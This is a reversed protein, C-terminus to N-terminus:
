YLRSKFIKSFQYYALAGMITEQPFIVPEQKNLYRVMNMGAVIGSQASEILIMNLVNRRNKPSFENKM